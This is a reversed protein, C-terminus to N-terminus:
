RPYFRKVTQWDARGTERNALTNACQTVWNTFPHFEDYGSTKDAAYPDSMSGPCSTVAVFNGAADYGLYDDDQFLLYHGLEHAFARAWDDGITGGPDGYRNWDIALRIQGPEYTIVQSANIIESLTTSVIGGQSANPRLRNSAFVRVNADNWQEGAQYLNIHGLAAQGDTWDYLLESARQLDFQLRNLTTTDQRADWELSVDLDFLILPNNPSVVLTQVGPTIVTYTKLGTTIPAASSYYLTYTGTSSIPYLAVLRDGREIRGRGQLYGQGDTRFPRGSSDAFPKAGLIQSVPLHFVLANSISQTGSFVQVQTGRVRFPFTTASAFPHQFVPVGNPGSSLSPYAEIRFVVNDSQGFFGSTFTDWKYTYTGPTVLNSTLTGSAAAAPYWKGGGDPSYYARISRVSDGEPDSLTYTIPVMLSGLMKATAFFNANRVPHLAELSALNNPLGSFGRGGNRYLQNPQYSNGVLLDLDGDNDVDGWAVSRTTHTIPNWATDLMLTGRTNRYLQSPQYYSNGVLLDLDGDGDMDGWAVNQTDRPEPHWATDLMLTGGTNRYLQNPQRWNGVLLDLDGDGDVDGWAVSRTPSPEPHWATDLTLTGDNNRYLQNPTNRNGVLLDLDGDGDVDGWALSTTNGPEPNWAPDLTLTGNTNRYLQNPEKVHCHCTYDYYGSNEVLLDLDGDGDVDGWAVSTTTRTIPNWVTDLTLTGGTNRYLQNPEGDNGVLLDLDSDGDVDGWAVSQTTRTIPNWATDQTLTGGTNHYLQNPEGDNGVLLDLDGDGDVDGWAVSTTTNTVPSWTADLTLTGGANRYLRSSEGYGDNGVLLDLDGDGDVDGWAVSNTHSPEPNWATDLTLTGSNNRYLQNPTNSNGVLLDLDGDGDVDGWAVSKTLRLAPNWVTDLTLTGSDNRYLQSSSYDNGVLLDLDGDGDVDGWAVSQTFRYAPNWATDLTLTGNDNRYLQNSSYDNGVILDLDGDGDVDGWAVSTTTRTDPNWVTDLTLTGGNNRYLQNPQDWNGVLLDLDGDGDVDGWAVSRTTRTGPNWVTDLTLTGGTNRYLQNPLGENGVLLDLDSDGDVDGWAVSTTTRTIPNWVTDLTLTGGTNRYLQNPEGDNGVLLDLDGDSDVDGWAVSATSRPEPNWTGDWTLPEYEDPALPNPQSLPSSSSSAYVAHAQKTIQRSAPQNSAFDASVIPLALLLLVLCATSLVVSFLVRVRAVIQSSM